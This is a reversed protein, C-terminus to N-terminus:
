FIVWGHEGTINSWGGLQELTVKKKYVIMQLKENRCPLNPILLPAFELWSPFITIHASMNGPTSLLKNSRSLLSSQMLKLKVYDRLNLTEILNSNLSLSVCLYFSNNFIYFVANLFVGLYNCDICNQLLSIM